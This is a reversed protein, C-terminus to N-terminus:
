LLAIPSPSREEEEGRSPLWCQYAGSITSGPAIMTCGAYYPKDPQAFAISSEDFMLDDAGDVWLGTVNSAIVQPDANAPRWDHMPTSINSFTDVLLHVDQFVINTLPPMGASTNSYLFIGNEAHMLIHEFRIDSVTGNWAHWESASAVNVWIPEAAGWFNPGSYRTEIDMNAFSFNQLAGSGWRPGICIGRNTDRIIIGNAHVDQVGGTANLDFAAVKIAASTSELRLQEM